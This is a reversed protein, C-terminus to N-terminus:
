RNEQPRAAKFLEIDKDFKKTMLVGEKEKSEIELLTAKRDKILKSIANLTDESVERGGREDAAAMAQYRNIESDIKEVNRGLIAIANKNDMLKRQKAEEIDFATSYRKFLEALYLSKQKDLELKTKQEQSLEPAIREVLRGDHTIVDYGKTVYKPPIKSSIVTVGKTDVYRYFLVEGAILSSAGMALTIVLTPFLKKLSRNMM